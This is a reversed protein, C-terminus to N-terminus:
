EDKLRNARSSEYPPTWESEIVVAELGLIRALQPMAETAALGRAKVRDEEVCTILVCIHQGAYREWGRVELWSGERFSSPGALGPFTSSMLPFFMFLSHFVISFSVFCPGFHDFSM